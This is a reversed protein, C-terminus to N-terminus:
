YNIEHEEEINMESQSEEETLSRLSGGGARRLWKDIQTLDNAHERVTQLSLLDNEYHNYLAQDFTQMGENTSTQMTSHLQNTKMERILNRVASNALMVEMVAVRGKGDKTPLLQQAVVGELTSALMSRIQNHRGAPFVDVIRDVVGAASRTHLTGIVLNGTEAATLALSITELDRMEGVLIVDPDERLGARLASAFDHTHAGVERQTVLCNKSAHVYEIPDEITLIHARKNQNIRNVMAAQTTSKGSGSPGTVLIFGHQRQTLSYVAKPANIEELTMSEPPIIRFAAGEGRNHNYINTRFRGVDAIKWAFDLQFDQEYQTIQRETLISYIADHVEEETLPDHKIWRIQGNVRIIPPEGATIHLDSCGQSTAYKLVRFLNFAM